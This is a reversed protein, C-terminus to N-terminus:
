NLVSIISFMTSYNQSILVANEGETTVTPMTSFSFPKFGLNQFWTAADSQLNIKPTVTSTVTANQTFTLKVKQVVNYPSKFGGIHYAINNNPASSQPSNGELRAMIYGSNWSWFMGYKPDLAGVQAGSFNRVSDVGILFEISKYKGFPVNKIVFSLSEDTKANILHYSEEESFRNGQEDIFVFNSLYYEYSSITFVEGNALTYSVLGGLGLPKSGVVNNIKIGITGKTPTPNNTTPNTPTPLPKKRCSLIAVSLIMCSFFLIRSM